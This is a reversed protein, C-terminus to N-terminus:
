NPAHVGPADNSRNRGFVRQQVPARAPTDTVGVLQCIAGPFPATSGNGGYPDTWWRTPGASNAVRADRLYVDRYTGDYPSRVDDFAYAVAEAGNGRAQDCSGGGARDGNPEIEWCLDLTRRMAPARSPDGYRSPNFVGFASDFSALLDGGATRLENTSSWKEYAAWVSTTRGAPVLFTTQVCTRDPILREGPGDPYGSDTAPVTVSPDCGRNYEGPAGFRSVTNSILETGDSCRAAFLLEHVNNSLADPSHSGQHVRTLFDCTVGLGGDATTLAVDNEYDIKYGVHDEQRKVVGPNAAAWDELAETALGFPIGAYDERGASAFHGSVWGALDSSAPNRGHEHGFTCARGTAPDTVSPPHWGPYRKGDPGIVSFREHVSAPCSDAATPAWNRQGFAVSAVAAPLLPPLGDSGAPAPAAAVPPGSPTPVPAPAAPVRSVARVVRIDIRGAYRRGDAARVRFALWDRGSFGARPRYRVVGARSSFASLSGSRARRTVVRTAGKQRGKAVVRRRGGKGRVVCDLRLKVTSGATVKATTTLCTGTRPAAQAVHPVTVVVGAAVAAAAALGARSL